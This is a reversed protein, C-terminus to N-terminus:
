HLSTNKISKQKQTALDPQPQCSDFRRVHVEQAQYSERQNSEGGCVLFM